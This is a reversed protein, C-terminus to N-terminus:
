SESGADSPVDRFPRLQREEPSSLLGLRRAHAIIPGLVISRRREFDALSEGQRPKSISDQARLVSLVAAGLQAERSTESFMDPAYGSPKSPASM